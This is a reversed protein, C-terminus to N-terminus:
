WTWDEFFRGAKEKLERGKRIFYENASAVAILLLGVALLYVWWDIM